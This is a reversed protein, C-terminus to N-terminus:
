LLILNLKLFLLRSSQSYTRARVDASCLYVTNLSIKSKAVFLLRAIKPLLHETLFINNGPGSSWGFDAVILWPQRTKHLIDNRITRRVFKAVIKKASKINLLSHCIGLVRRWNCSGLKQAM